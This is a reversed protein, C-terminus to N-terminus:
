EKQCKGCKITKNVRSVRYPNRSEKSDRKRQKPPKGLPEYVHPTVSAHQNTEVWEFQGLM